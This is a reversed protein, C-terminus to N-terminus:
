PRRNFVINIIVAASSFLVLLFLIPIVAWPPAQTAAAIGGLGFTMIMLMGLSAIALALRQAATPAGGVAHGPLKEGFISSHPIGEYGGYSSGPRNRNLEGYNMEQQSM